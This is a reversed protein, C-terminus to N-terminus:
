RAWPRGCLCRIKDVEEILKGCGAAEGAAGGAGGGEGLDQNRGLQEHAHGVEEEEEVFIRSGFPNEEEDEGDDEVGADGTGEVLLRMTILTIGGLGGWTRSGAPPWWWPGLLPLMTGTKLATHTHGGVPHRCVLIVIFQYKRNEEIIRRIRSDVM